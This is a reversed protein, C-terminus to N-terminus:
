FIKIKFYKEKCKDIYFKLDNEKEKKLRYNILEEKLESLEFKIDFNNLEDYIELLLRQISSIVTILKDLDNIDITEINLIKNELNNFNSRIIELKDSKNTLIKAKDTNSLVKAFIISNSDFEYTDFENFIEKFSHSLLPQNKSICILLGNDKTMRVANKVIDNPNEFYDYGNIVTIDYFSDKFNIHEFSSYLISIDDANNLLMINNLWDSQGDSSIVDSVCQLSSKGFFESILGLFYSLIGSTCGIELINNGKARQMYKNITLISACVLMSRDVPDIENETKNCEDSIKIILDSIIDYEKDGIFHLPIYSKNSLFDFFDLLLKKDGNDYVFYFKNEHVNLYGM